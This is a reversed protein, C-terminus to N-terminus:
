LSNEVRLVPYVNLKHDFYPSREYFFNLRQYPNGRFKEDEALKKEFEEKLGPIENLMEVAMKEMVYREFYEKREFITNFFGWRLFSDASKPELLWLIVRVTRQDTKVKFSGATIIEDEQIVDYNCNVTQRGEYPVDSFKVDKFKYKTVNLKTEESITEIEVGHLKLRDVILGWEQPIIYASPVIISDVIELENYYPVIEEFKEGTFTTRIGGSVVSSDRVSKFGKYLIESPTDKIKFQIPFYEKEKSYMEVTKLDAERNLVLIEDKQKGIYEISAEIAAKTGFVREKFPKMMHTEVLLCIRNQIAVYGNSLRPSGFWDYLGKEPANDRFGLYPFVLFGKEEVYKEFYPIFSSKIKEAMAPYVNQFKEIGYTVTYQFDAGNTTHNDILFDPLWNSFLKILYQMEPADAKLWDRNLNLNQATTRWGMEAPGNQNIRNYKSFREHGDVSFIPIILLNCHDLYNSKEKTILIERLLLMTADKGEIEGSHIGNVIMLLPKGTKKAEEPTFVKEKSVILAFIDRGQPSQGISFMKVYESAAEFKKFYEMTEEYRATELYNSKEFKTLWEDKIVNQAFTPIYLVINFFLLLTLFRINKENKM